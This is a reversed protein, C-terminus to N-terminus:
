SCFSGNMPCKTLFKRFNNLGFIFNSSYSNLIKCLHSVYKKSLTYGDGYMVYYIALLPGLVLGVLLNFSQKLYGNMNQLDYEIKTNKKLNKL